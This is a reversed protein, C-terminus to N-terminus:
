QSTLRREQRGHAFSFIGFLGTLSTLVVGSIIGSRSLRATVKARNIEVKAQQKFDRDFVLLKHVIKQSDGIAEVYEDHVACAILEPTVKVSWPTISKVYGNCESALKGVLDEVCTTVDPAPASSVVKAPFGNFEFEDIEALWTPYNADSRAPLGDDASGESEAADSEISTTESNTDNSSPVNPPGDTEPLEGDFSTETVEAKVNALEIQLASELSRQGQRASDRQLRAQLAEAHAREVAVLERQLVDAQYSYSRARYTLLMGAVLMSVSCAVALIGLGALRYRHSFIMRLIVIGFALAAMSLLAIIPILLVVNSQM